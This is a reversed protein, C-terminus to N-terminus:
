ADIIGMKEKLWIEAEEESKEIAIEVAKKACELLHKSQKRLNFSETIKEAISLQKDFPLIPFVIEKLTEQNLRQQVSGRGNRLMLEKGVISNLYVLLYYTDIKEKDSIRIRILNDSITGGECEKPIRASLGITGVRTVVVDGAKAKKDEIQSKIPLYLLNDIDVSGNTLDTGRIYPAGKNSEVYEESYQGTTIDFIDYDGIPKARHKNVLVEVIEDYKPQFYEADFRGAQQTDSYNKIFSLQHKPKWNLLNLESLLLTQAESYLQKSNQHYRVNQCHLDYIFDRFPKTPTYLPIHKVLTLTLHPQATMSSSRILLKNYFETLFYYFIFVYDKEPLKSTNVFILDRSLVSDKELLGIRAVSGGKTLIIDGRKGTKLTKYENLIDTPIKICNDYDIRINTDLVRIFPMTGLGYYPELSPYFASADIKLNLEKLTVFKDHKNKIIKEFQLYVPLFYESDFRFTPLTAVKAFNVVSYQM